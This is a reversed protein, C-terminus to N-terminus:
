LGRIDHIVLIVGAKQAREPYVVWSKLVTGDSMKVDAWEGHRSSEKLARAAHDATGPPLADNWPVEIQPGGRGGGGGPAAPPQGPPATQAPAQGHMRSHDVATQATASGAIALLAMTFVVAKMSSDEELSLM